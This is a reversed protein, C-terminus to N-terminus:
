RQHFRLGFVYRVVNSGSGLINDCSSGADCKVFARRFDVQGVVSMVDNFPIAVGAGPQVMLSNTTFKKNIFIGLAPGSGADLTDRQVGVVIQVFPTVSDGRKNWRLGGGWNVANFNAHSAALEEKLSDRIWGLEALISWQANVPKSGDANFGYKYLGSYSTGDVVKKSSTAGQYGIGVDLKELDQAAAPLAVGTMGVMLISLGVNRTLTKVIAKM